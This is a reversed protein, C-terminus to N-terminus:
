WPEITVKPSAKSGTIYTGDERQIFYGKVDKQDVIFASHLKTGVPLKEGAYDSKMTPKVRPITEQRTVLKIRVPRYRLQRGDPDTVRKVTANPDTVWAEWGAPLWPRPFEPEPVPEPIPAPSQYGAQGFDERLARIHDCNTGDLWWNYAYQQLCAFRSWTPTPWGSWASTQCFYRMKDYIPGLHEIIGLGGYVGMREWGIVGAAGEICLRVAEYHAPNPEIDHAFYVPTDAPMGAQALNKVANRAAYVGAAQGGLMWGEDSEWFVMVNIGSARLRAYEAATIGRGRPMTSLDDVAYRGVFEVGVAQLTAVSPSWAEPIRSYDAGEIM